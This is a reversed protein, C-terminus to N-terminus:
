VTMYKVQLMGACPLHLGGLQPKCLHHNSALVRFHLLHIISAKRELTSQSQNEPPFCFWESQAVDIFEELNPILAGLAETQNSATVLDKLTDKYRKVEEFVM